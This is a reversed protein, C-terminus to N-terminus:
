FLALRAEVLERYHDLIWAVLDEPRQGIAQPKTWLELNEVRNDDRIGNLHHVNEFPQLSRGLHQEMVFRHQLLFKGIFSGNMYGHKNKYWKIESITEANKRIKNDLSVGNKARRYHLACLGWANVPRTCNGHQCRDLSGKPPKDMDQKKKERQYHILCFGLCYVPRKCTKYKCNESKKANPHIPDDMAKGRKLREYHLACFGKAHHASGCNKVTCLEYNIQPEANMNKGNKFRAYHM